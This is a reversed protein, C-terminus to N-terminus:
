AQEMPETSFLYDMSLNPFLEDRILFAMHTPIGSKGNLWRSVTEPTKGIRAAMEAQTIGCRSMEANLNPYRM